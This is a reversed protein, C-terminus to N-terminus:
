TEEEKEEVGANHGGVALANVLREYCPNMALQRASLVPARKINQFHQLAFVM